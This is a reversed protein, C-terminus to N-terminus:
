LLLSPDGHDIQDIQLHDIQHIHLDNIQLYDMRDDTSSRGSRDSTHFTEVFTSCM